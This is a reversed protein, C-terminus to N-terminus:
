FTLSTKHTLNTPITELFFSSWVSVEDDSDYSADSMNEEEFGNM